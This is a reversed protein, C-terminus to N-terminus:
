LTPNHLKLINCLEAIVEPIQPTHIYIRKNLDYEKSINVSKLFLNRWHKFSILKSNYIMTSRSYFIFQTRVDM